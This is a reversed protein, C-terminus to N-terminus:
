NCAPHLVTGFEVFAQRHAVFRGSDGFNTWGRLEDGIRLRTM